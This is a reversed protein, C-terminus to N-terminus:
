GHRGAASGPWRGSNVYLQGDSLQQLIKSVNPDKSAVLAKIAAEREPFDGRWACRCAPHIDEQAKLVTAFAPMALCLTLLLIKIARYMPKRAETITPRGACDPFIHGDAKLL